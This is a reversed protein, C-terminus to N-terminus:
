NQCKLLRRFIELHQRAINEPLYKLASQCSAEGLQDQLADGCVLIKYALEDANGCEILLGNTNDRIISEAGGSRTAIVPTGTAM